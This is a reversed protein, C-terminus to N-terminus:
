LIQSLRKTVGSDDNMILWFTCGTRINGAEQWMLLRVPKYSAADSMLWVITKAVESSSGARKM